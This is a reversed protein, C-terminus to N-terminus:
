LHQPGLRNQDFLSARRFTWGYFGASAVLIGLGLGYMVGLGLWVGLAYGLLPGCASGLDHFTTYRGIARAHQGPVALDGLSADLSASLATGSIFVAIAALSLPLFTAVSTLVLLAAAGVAFAAMIVPRRGLRDSLHGLYPGLGFDILWRSSLLLGTLSAIGISVSGVTVASGYLNKLLLGLTSTVLGSTVFGNAFGCLNVAWLGRRRKASEAAGVTVPLLPAAISHPQDTSPRAASHKPQDPSRGGTPAAIAAATASLGAFLLLTPRYGLADTLLGGVAVAVLSGLRSIGLFFGMLLGRDRDTAQDLVTGLGGVRLFSWAIGWLVRAVFLLWFGYALGYIATTTAGLLLAATFPRAYGLRACVHGAWANSLLRIFRNASLIIGVSGLPVGVAEAQSPLVAYLLSDGLLSLAVAISVLLVSRPVRLRIRDITL